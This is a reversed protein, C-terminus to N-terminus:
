PLLEIIRRLTKREAAAAITKREWAPDDFDEEQRITKEIDEELIRTLRRILLTSNALAKATSETQERSLEPDGAVRDEKFWRTDLKRM